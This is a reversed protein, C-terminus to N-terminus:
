YFVRSTERTYYRANRGKSFNNGRRHLESNKPVRSTTITYYRLGNKCSKQRSKINKIHAFARPRRRYHRKQRINHHKSFARNRTKQGAVQSPAIYQENSLYMRIMDQEQLGFYARAFRATRSNVHESILRCQSCSLLTSNNVQLQSQRVARRFNRNSVGLMRQLDCIRWLGTNYGIKHRNNSFRGIQTM